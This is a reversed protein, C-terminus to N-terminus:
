RANLYEMQRYFQEEQLEEFHILMYAITAICVFLLLFAVWTLQKTGQKM